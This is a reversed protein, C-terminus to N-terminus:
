TNALRIGLQSFATIWKVTAEPDVADPWTDDPHHFLSNGGLISIYRGNGDYVNGAEGLPRQAIPTETAPKLALNTLEIAMDQRARADSYQLRVGAGYKAAFNAGLHVWMHASKLLGPHGTLYDDLGIHGLEHGTNATFIVRRRNGAVKIASMMELLCAIGGGRESACQWWGSRPTMIVIPALAPDSGRIEAVVNRAESALYECLVIIRVKEKKDAASHIQNWYRNSVQLAPVGFPKGFYEANLAAPGSDPFSADTVLLIAKHNGNVRATEILESRFPMSRIVGIDADSGLPGLSGEIGRDDTYLCDYLPLGTIVESGLHFEATKVDVRQFQFRQIQPTVGLDYIQSALWTASDNDVKTGTRHVGQNSYDEIYKVTRRLRNKEINTPM